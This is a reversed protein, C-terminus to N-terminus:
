SSFTSHSSRGEPRVARHTMGIKYPIRVHACVNIVYRQCLVLTKEDGFTRQPIGVMQIKLVVVGSCACRDYLHNNRSLLEKLSSRLDVPFPTFPFGIHCEISVIVLAISSARHVLEIGVEFRFTSRLSVFLHPRQPQQCSIAPRSLIM